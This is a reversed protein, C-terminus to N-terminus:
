CARWLHTALQEAWLEKGDLGLQVVNMKGHLRASGARKADAKKARERDHEPGNVEIGTGATLMSSDPILLDIYGDPGSTYQGKKDRGKDRASFVPMQHVIESEAAHKDLLELLENYGHVHM